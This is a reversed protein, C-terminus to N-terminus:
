IIYVYTQIKLSIWRNKTKQKVNKYICECVSQNQSLSLDFMIFGSLSVIDLPTVKIIVARVAMGLISDDRKLIIGLPAELATRLTYPASLM